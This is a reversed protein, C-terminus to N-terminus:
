NPNPPKPLDVWVNDRAFPGLNLTALAFEILVSFLTLMNPDVLVYYPPSHCLCMIHVFWSLHSEILPCELRQLLLACFVLKKPSAVGWVLQHLRSKGKTNRVVRMPLTKLYPKRTATVEFISKSIVAENNYCIGMHVWQCFFSHIMAYSQHLKMIPNSLCPNPPKTSHSHSSNKQTPQYYM